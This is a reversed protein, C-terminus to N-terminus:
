LKLNIIGEELQRKVLGLAILITKGIIHELILIELGKLVCLNVEISTLVEIDLLFCMLVFGSAIKWTYISDRLFIMTSLISQSISM